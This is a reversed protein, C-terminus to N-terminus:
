LQTLGPGYCRRMRDPLVKLTVIHTPRDDPAGHHGYQGRGGLRQDTSAPKM